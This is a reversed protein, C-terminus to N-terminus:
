PTNPLVNVSVNIYNICIHLTKLHYKTKLGQGRYINQAINGQGCSPPLTNYGSLWLTEAIAAPIMDRLDNCVLYFHSM